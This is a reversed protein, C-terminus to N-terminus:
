SFHFADDLQLPLVVLLDLPKLPCQCAEKRLTSRRVFLCKGVFVLCRLDEVADLRSVEVEMSLVAVLISTALLKLGERCWRAVLLAIEGLEISPQYLNLFVMALVRIGDYVAKLQFQGTYQVGACGL